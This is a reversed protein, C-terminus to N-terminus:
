SLYSPESARFVTVGVVSLQYFCKCSSVNMLAAMVCSSYYRYGDDTVGEWQRRGAEQGRVPAGEEGGGGGRIVGELLLPLVWWVWGRGGVISSDVLELVQHTTGSATRPAWCLDSVSGPLIGSCRQSSWPRRWIDHCLLCFFSPSLESM